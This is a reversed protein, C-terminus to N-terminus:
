NGHQLEQLYALETEMAECLLDDTRVRYEEEMAKVKDGFEIELDKQKSITTARHIDIWKVHQNPENKDDLFLDRNSLDDYFKQLKKEVQGLRTKKHEKKREERLLTSASKSM